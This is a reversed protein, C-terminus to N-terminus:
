ELSRVFALSPGSAIATAWRDNSTDGSRSAAANGLVALVVIIIFRYEETLSSLRVSVSADDCRLSLPVMEKALLRRRNRSLFLRLESSLSGNVVVDEDTTSVVDTTM